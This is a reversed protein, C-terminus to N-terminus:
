PDAANQLANRLEEVQIHRLRVGQWLPRISNLRLLSAKVMMVPSKLNQM